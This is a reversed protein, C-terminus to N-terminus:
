SGCLFYQNEGSPSDGGSSILYTVPYTSYEQTFQNVIVNGSSNSGQANPSAFSPLREWVIYLGTGNSSSCPNVTNHGGPTSLCDGNLIKLYTNATDQDRMKVSVQITATVIKGIVKSEDCGSASTTGTAKNGEICVKRKKSDDMNFQTIFGNTGVSTDVLSVLPLTQRLYNGDILDNPISIDINEQYKNNDPNLKGPKFKNDGYDDVSGHGYCEAKYFYSMAVFLADANYKIQRAESDIQFSRYQRITMILLVSGIVLVLLIELITVGKNAKPRMIM